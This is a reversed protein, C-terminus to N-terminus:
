RHPRLVPPLRPLGALPRLRIRARAAPGRHEGVDGVVARRVRPASRGSVKEILEVCRLLVDEEQERSLSVPNEHSYGHAGIEHGGALVAEIERPFTELSHGPVFWSTKIDYREFLTVLRPVGVEGAFLGRQIDSPSDQGGYSGLWGCVADVDVGFTVQIDKM